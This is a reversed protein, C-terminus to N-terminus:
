TQFAGVCHGHFAAHLILTLRERESFNLDSACTGSYSRVLVENLHNRWFEPWVCRPVYRCLGRDLTPREADLRLRGLHNSLRNEMFLGFLLLPSQTM